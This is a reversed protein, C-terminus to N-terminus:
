GFVGELLCCVIYFIIIFMRCIKVFLWEPVYLIAWRTIKLFTIIAEKTTCVLWILKGMRQPTKSDDFFLLNIGLEAGGAVFGIFLCM